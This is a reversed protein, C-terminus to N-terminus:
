KSLLKAIKLLAIQDDRYQTIPADDFENEFPIMMLEDSYSMYIATHGGWIVVNLNLLHREVVFKKIKSVFKDGLIDKYDLGQSAYIVIEGEEFVMELDDIDSPLDLKDKGKINIIIRGEFSLVNELTIYKGVFCPEEKKKDLKLYAAVDAVMFPTKLFTGRTLNRSGIRLIDKYLRDASLEGTDLKDHPEMSLQEFSNDEYVFGNFQVNIFNIYDRTANPFRNRNLFYYVVMAVLTAGAVGYGIYKYVDNESSMLIFALVVLAVVVLTVINSMLKNTKHKKKLTQRASEVRQPFSDEIVPQEIAPEVSKSEDIVPEEVIPEEVVEGITEVSVIENEPKELGVQKKTKKM